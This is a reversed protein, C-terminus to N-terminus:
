QPNSHQQIAKAFKGAGRLSPSPSLTGRPLPAEEVAILLANISWTTKVKALDKPSVTPLRPNYAPFM